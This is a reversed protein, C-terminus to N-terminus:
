GCFLLLALWLIVDSDQGNRALLLILGIILIEDWGLGHSFPFATGLNGLLNGLPKYASLSLDEKPPEPLPPLLLAPPPTVTPKSEVPSQKQPPPSPKAPEPYRTPAKPVPKEQKQPQNPNSFACGSYHEPIRIPAESRNQSRSYM